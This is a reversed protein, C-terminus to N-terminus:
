NIRQILLILSLIATAQAISDALVQGWNIPEKTSEEGPKEVEKEKAGVTITSGKRVPPSILVIGFNQTKKVEGNPHIVTIKSAKGNEGVGATYKNVYYRARKGRHFPVTIKGEKLIEQSYVENAKTAGSITVFDKRSPITVVDGVKMIYNFRSDKVEQAEKLNMIIYGVGDKARYMMAGEPFAEPTLGGAREILSTLQENDSLLPYVGPFRVEGELTINEQLKFDPVNRVFIQDYPELPFAGGQGSLLDLEEDVEVIAVVTQTPSNNRILVRSVEIRNSAAGFKLGGALTLADRLTLSPDFQYQGPIRVAGSVSVDIDDLFTTQSLVNLKDFPKLLLNEASGPNELAARLDVRIYEIKQTELNTRNIYAFDTADPKLGGSLEVLDSVRIRETPDYSITTPQRLAGASTLTAKDVFTSQAFIQVLDKPELVVNASDAPNALAATLDIRVLRVTQDPMTRFLYAVDTRSERQLRAKDVIDTVRMGPTLQYRGPFEVTGNVEAYNEYPKAIIAVTIEDGSFLEFDGNAALLAELDVDFIREENQIYRKVQINGRYANEKLGGAYDILQRLNEGEILEYKYPRRVAGNITVLKEYIPIHIYDNNQLFFKSEVGPDALFEYVDFVRAPEGNRLLKIRRVSGLDTPGGIAALANFVTNTAPIEYSGANFVEGVINVTIVRSYSVTVEFENPGFSYYQAFRGRLIERGQDLTIGKLYIRGLPAVQIYGEQNIEFNFNVQSNGFISVIIEDGVGLVYAGPAKVDQAELSVQFDQQRFIHQGYISAPPLQDKGTKLKVEPAEQKTETEKPTETVQPVEEPKAPVSDQVVAPTVPGGAVAKEAALEALVEELAVQVDGVDEPGINNIDIGKAQLKAAVEEQSVGLEDLQKQVDAPVSQAQATWSFGVLFAALIFIQKMIPHSNFRAKGTNSNM